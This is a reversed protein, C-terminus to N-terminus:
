KSSFSEINLTNIVPKTCIRIFYTVEITATFVEKFTATNLMTFQPYFIIRRYLTDYLRIFWKCIQTGNVGDAIHTSAIYSLTGNVHDYISLEYVM